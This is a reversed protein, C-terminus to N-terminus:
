EGGRDPSSRLWALSPVLMISSRWQSMQSPPQVKQLFATTRNLRSSWSLAKLGIEACRQGDGGIVGSSRCEASRAMTMMVLSSRCSM